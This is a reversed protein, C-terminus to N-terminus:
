GGPLQPGHPGPLHPGLRISGAPPQMLPPIPSPSWPPQPMLAGFAGPIPAVNGAAPMQHQSHYGAGPQPLGPHHRWPQGPIQSMAGTPGHPPPTAMQAFMAQQRARNVANRYVVEAVHQEAIAVQYFHKIREEDAFLKAHAYLPDGM